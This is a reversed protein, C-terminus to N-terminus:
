IIKRRCCAYEDMSVYVVYGRAKRIERTKDNYVAAQGADQFFFFMFSTLFRGIVLVHCRKNILILLRRLPNAAAQVNQRAQLM